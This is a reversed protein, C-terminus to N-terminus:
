AKGEYWRRGAPTRLYKTWEASFYFVTEADTDREYCELGVNPMNAVLLDNIRPVRIKRGKISGGILVIEIGKSARAM